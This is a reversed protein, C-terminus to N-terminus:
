YSACCSLFDIQAEELMAKLFVFCSIANLTYYNKISKDSYFILSFSSIPMKFVVSSLGM